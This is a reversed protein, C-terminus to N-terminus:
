LKAHMSTDAQITDIRRLLPAANAGAKQARDGCEIEEETNLRRQQQLGPQQQQQQQQQQQPQQQLQQQPQESTPGQPAAGLACACACVTWSSM